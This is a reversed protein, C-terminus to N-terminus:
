EWVVYCFYQIGQRRITNCSSHYKLRAAVSSRKWNRASCGMPPGECAMKSVSMGPTGDPVKTSVSDHTLRTSGLTAPLACAQVPLISPARSHGHKCAVLQVQQLCVTALLTSCAFQQLRVAALLSSQLLQV